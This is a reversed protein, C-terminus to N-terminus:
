MMQTVVSGGGIKVTHVTVQLQPAAADRGEIVAQALGACCPVEMRMVTLSAPKATAFIEALKARYAALDDLKPCGVLVSRGRLYQAHFDPVAFPVCDACILLHAGALFPATPPVLRLQVPWHTLSSQATAPPEDSNGSPRSSEQHMMRMAMGPCAHGEGGVKDPTIGPGTQRALHQRVAQEDFAAAERREITIAGRPCEGLCAGLGDCYTESILRAKGNVIQIAGEACATACLGCGDCKSQDIQIVNRQVKDM